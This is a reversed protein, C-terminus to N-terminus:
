NIAHFTEVYMAAIAKASFIEVAKQNKLFMNNMRDKDNIIAVIDRAATDIDLSAISGEHPVKILDIDELVDTNNCEIVVPIGRSLHLSGSSEGKSSTFLLVTDLYNSLASM